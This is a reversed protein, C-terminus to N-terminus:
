RVDIVIITLDDADASAVGRWAEVSDLIQDAAQRPTLVRTSRLAEHLREDGFLEDRVDRAEVVGDTFAVIRDGSQLPFSRQEYQADAFRGLFVGNAGLERPENARLLLPSPHGANSLTVSRETMDFWLYSATVLARRVERRLTRNLEAIMTAPNAALHSQASVAMKVMSAVLAAPVGHGAVDAVLVGCGSADNERFDYLDGGVSSAPRYGVHIELGDIDPMTRPLISQQIERATELEHALAVREREGRLFSRTAAFGLSGVFALFGPTEDVSRWPLVGLDSLNNNLAFLLFAVSGALVVFLDTSGKRLALLLNALVNIGGTIVLINNVSGLSDPVGSVLDSLIGIPAFISFALVQWRLSERWGPGILHLALLWAPVTIVYTILSEAFAVLDIRAGLAFPVFSQIFLRLGYLSTFLGFYRLARVDSRRSVGSAFLAVAAIGILLLGIILDTISERVPTWALRRIAEPIERQGVVLPATGFLTTRPARPIHVYLTEGPRARSLRVVHIQARGSMRAADFAYLKTTGAYLTLSPVFTRFVLHPDAPLPRPLTIRMWLDSSGDRRADESWGAGDAPPGPPGGTTVVQEWPGELAIPQAAASGFAALLLLLAVRLASAIVTAHVPMSADSPYPHQPRLNQDRYCLSRFTPRM